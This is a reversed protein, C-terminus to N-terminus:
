IWVKFKTRFTNGETKVVNLDEKAADPETPTAVGLASTATSVIPTAIVVKPVNDPQFLQSLGYQDEGEAHGAGSSSRRRVGTSPSVAPVGVPAGGLKKKLISDKLIDRRGIRASRFSM